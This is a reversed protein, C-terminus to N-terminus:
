RKCSLFLFGQIYCKLCASFFESLYFPPPIAFCSLVQLTVCCHYGQTKKNQKMYGPCHVMSTKLTKLGSGDVSPFFCFWLFYFCFWFSWSFAMKGTLLHLLCPIGSCIKADCVRYYCVILFFSEEGPSWM